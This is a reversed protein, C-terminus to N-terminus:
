VALCLQQLEMWLGPAEVRSYIRAPTSIPDTDSRSDSIGYNGRTEIGVPKLFYFWTM